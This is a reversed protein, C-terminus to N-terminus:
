ETLKTFILPHNKNFDFSNFLNGIHLITKIDTHIVDVFKADSKDLRVLSSDSNFSPNAPDLGSIRGLKHGSANLEKGAFGAVHAGLSFGILHFDVSKAGYNRQFYLNVTM